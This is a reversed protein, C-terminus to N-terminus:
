VVTVVLGQSRLSELAEEPMGKDTIIESVRSLPFVKAFGLKNYKTSDALLVIRETNDCMKRIVEASELLM